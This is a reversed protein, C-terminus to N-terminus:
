CRWEHMYGTMEESLAPMSTLSIVYIFLFYISVTGLERLIKTNRSVSFCGKGFIYNKKLEQKKNLFLLLLGSHLM